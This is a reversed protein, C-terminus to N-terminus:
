RAEFVGGADTEEVLHRYIANNEVSTDGDEDTVEGFSLIDFVLVDGKEHDATLTVTLTLSTSLPGGQTGDDSLTNDDADTLAFTAGKSSYSKLLYFPASVDVDMTFTLESDTAVGSNFTYLKSADETKDINLTTSNTAVGEELGETSTNNKAVITTTVFGDVSTRSANETTLTDDVFAHTATDDDGFAIFDREEDFDLTFDVITIPSHIEITPIEESEMTIDDSARTNTDLNPATVTVTAAEGSNWFDDSTISIDVSEDRVTLQQTQQGCLVGHLRSNEHDSM